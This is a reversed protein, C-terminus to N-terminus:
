RVVTVDRDRLVLRLSNHMELKVVGPEWVVRMPSFERGRELEVLVPESQPGVLDWLEATTDNRVVVTPTAAERGSAGRKM